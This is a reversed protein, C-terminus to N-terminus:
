KIGEKIRAEQYEKFTIEGKSWSTEIDSFSRVKGSPLAPEAKLLGKARAIREFIQDDTEKKEVVPTEKKESKSIKKEAIDLDGNRLYQRIQYLGDPDEKFVTEARAYILDAKEKYEQRDLSEKEEKKKRETEKEMVEFQKLLEQKRQPTATEVDQTTGSEVVAAALMKQLKKVEDIESRLDGQKRLDEQNKNYKRQLEKYGGELRDRDNKLEEMKATLLELEKAETPTEVKPNEEKPTLERTEAEKGTDM